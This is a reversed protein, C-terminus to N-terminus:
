NRLESDILKRFREGSQGEVITGCKLYKIEKKENIIITTPMCKIEFTKDGELGMFDVGELIEWNIPHNELYKELHEQSNMTISWFAIEKDKYDEHLENLYPREKECGRCGINWFNMVLLKNALSDLSYVEQNMGRIETINISEGIELQSIQGTM